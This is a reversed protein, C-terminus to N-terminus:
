HSSTAQLQDGTREVQNSRVAFPQRPATGGRRNTFPQGDVVPPNSQQLSRLYFHKDQAKFFVEVHLGSVTPESLVIDCVLPDRGIRVTGPNKSPQNAHITQAQIKGQEV